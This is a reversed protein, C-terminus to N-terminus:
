LWRRVRRTYAAYEEGFASQLYREERQIVLALLAMIVLPLFLLPWASNVLLTLGLYAITLGTYMPNRSFRYPGSTVLRSAPHHPIVATRAAIFTAFAWLMFALGVALVTVGAPERAATAPPLIPLPYVRHLLWGALFGIAFIIPPPFRVGANALPAGSPPSSPHPM